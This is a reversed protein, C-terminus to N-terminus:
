RMICFRLFGNPSIYTTSLSSDLDPMILLRNRTGPDPDVDISVDCILHVILFESLQAFRM